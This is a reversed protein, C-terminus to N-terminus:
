KNTNKLSIMKGLEEHAEQTYNDDVNGAPSFTLEGFVPKGNYEYFDVRVFKFPKSLIEAYEYMKNISSPKEITFGIPAEMGEENIRMLKWNKNFYYYKAKGFKRDVCVMCCYPKGNFCYIKYDKIANEDNSDLFKECIIKKEIGKYQIEAVYKWFDIKMWKKLQKITKNKDLKNKDKCIINFGSAHNCKLVFKQPLKDFNIEEPKEYVGILENLIEECGCKKVYERVKYKDACNRVLENESYENLKLWMLKENFLKPEKLNLKKHMKTRYYIKSALEPSFNSIIAILKRYITRLM